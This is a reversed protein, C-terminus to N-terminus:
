YKKFDDQIYKKGNNKNEINILVKFKKMFKLSDHTFSKVAQARASFGALLSFFIFVPILKKM